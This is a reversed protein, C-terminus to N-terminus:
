GPKQLSRVALWGLVGVALLLAAWLVVPHRETWPKPPPPRYLLANEEAEGLSGGPALDWDETSTLRALEYQPMPARRYGYLLRYSRGPTQQFVVHRPTGFLELQLGELPPDNRNIVFIRWYRGRREPFEVRLATGTQDGRNNGRKAALRYIEGRGAYSWKERDDSHEIRVARHFAPQATEFDIVSVPIRESGLDVVWGSQGPPPEEEPVPVTTGSLPVLETEKVVERTVRSGEVSLAKEAEDLRLRLWRSRTDPYHLIQSGERGESRFRYLPVGSRIIRWTKEDDSAAIEARVFFDTQSIQLELTNHVEGGTGTDIVAQTYQGPVFGTDLVKVTRWVQTKGGLRTYLVYPAEKNEYDIVRLDSLSTEARAFLEPPLTVRALGPKEVPAVIIPRAYRWDKWAEPFDVRPPESQQGAAAVALALLLLLIKRKM